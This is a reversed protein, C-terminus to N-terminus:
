RADASIDTIAILASADPHSSDREAVVVVNLRIDTLGDAQYRLSATFAGDTSEESSFNTVSHQDNVTLVVMTNTGQETTRFGNLVFDTDISAGAALIVASYVRTSVPARTKKLGDYAVAGVGAALGEEFTIQFAKEDDSLAYDLHKISSFTPKKGFSVGDSQLMKSAM